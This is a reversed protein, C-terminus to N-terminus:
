FVIVIFSFVVGVGSRKESSVEVSWSRDMFGCVVVYEGVVWVEGFMLNM